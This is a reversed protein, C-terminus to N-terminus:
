GIEGKALLVAGQLSSLGGLRAREVPPAPAGARALRRVHAAVRPVFGPLGDAFGGGIVVADPRVLEAVGVAAAALVACGEEVASVAWSRGAALADRLEEYRVPGGYLLAARRLTAPGSAAAQVCGDRGCDCRPGSRDVIVHGLEASGRGPGPVPRGAVVIGGGVGTGVGLYVLNRHGAGDAEAVAALDGDDGWRVAADPFLERLLGGLDLGVWAPRGPWAVVRGSDDLAAPVAVGVADFPGSHRAGWRARVEAVHARLAERDAARDPPSPWRFSTQEVQTGDSEARLAVKTGGM